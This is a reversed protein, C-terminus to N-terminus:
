TDYLALTGVSSLEYLRWLDTEATSGFGNLVQDKERQMELWYESDEFLRLIMKMTPRQSSSHMLCLRAIFMMVEMEETKYNRSLSPDVLRECQGFRLLSRAWLVLSEHNKQNKQIADKGTILELLVVGYSYVDIKEDIKGCVIYEPALYGFTKVIDIPKTNAPVQYSQHHVIAAGFDSLQPQCNDSLLINSPKVNRHIIPPDCFHHLYELAKAVSIAIGMREAWKLQKLCEKLSGKLLNYVIARLEISDCYGIIEVINEHKISSLMEVERLLDKASWHTTKLVKVAAAKGDELMARYVMSNGGKGIVMSPSFNDTAVSLEDSRFCRCSREAEPFAIRHFRRRANVNKNLSLQGGSDMQWKSSSASSSPMTFSKKFQDQVTKQLIHQGESDIQCMSQSTSSSPVTLSKHLLRSTTSQDVMSNTQTSSLYSQLTVGASGQQSTGQRRVLIRGADDMVLLTCTPPLSKLCNSIASVKPGSLNCGIALITAYNERVQHSLASIYSNGTCIKVLFDVRKSKCLDEHIHFNNPDLADDREQVHVALVNDGSKAFTRLLQLLMERSNNDSKLGVIITKNKVTRGNLYSMIRCNISANGVM